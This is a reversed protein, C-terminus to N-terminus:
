WQIVWDGDSSGDSFIWRNRNSWVILHRHEVATFTSDTIIKKPAWKGSEATYKKFNVLGSHLSRSGWDVNLFRLWYYFIIGSWDPTPTENKRYFITRQILLLPSCLFLVKQSKIIFFLINSYVSWFYRMYMWLKTSQRFKTAYIYLNGTIKFSSVVCCFIM